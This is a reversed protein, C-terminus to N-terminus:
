TPTAIAWKMIIAQILRRLVLDWLENHIEFGFQHLVFGISAGLFLKSDSSLVQQLVQNLDVEFAM